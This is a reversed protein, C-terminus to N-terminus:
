RVLKQHRIQQSGEIAVVPPGMVVVIVEGGTQFETMIQFILIAVTQLAGHRMLPGVLEAPFFQIQLNGAALDAQNIVGRREFQYGHHIGLIQRQGIVPVRYIHACFDTALILIVSFGLYVTQSLKLPLFKKGNFGDCGRRLM